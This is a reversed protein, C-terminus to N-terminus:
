NEQEAPTNKKIAIVREKGPEGVVKYLFDQSNEGKEKIAKDRIHRIYERSKKTRDVEISIKWPAGKLKKANKLIEKAVGVDTMNVLIPRIKNEQKEGIRKVAKIDEDKFESSVHKCIKKVEELDGGEEDQEELRYIVLNEQKKKGLEVDTMLDCLTERVQIETLKPAAAQMEEVEKQVVKKVEKQVCEPATEEMKKEILNNVKEETLQNKEINDIRGKMHDMEVKMTIMQNRLAKAAGKCPTCYWSVNEDLLMKYKELTYNLCKIHYWDLCADCGVAKSKETVLGNCM